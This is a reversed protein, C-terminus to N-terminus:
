YYRCGVGLNLADIIAWDMASPLKRVGPKLSTNMLDYPYLTSDLHSGDPTLKTTFTNTTFIGNKVHKDFESYGNIIGLTHGMEHLIATLLDYKGSAVSNPTAQLYNDTGTFESNDQPTTDIFWGIGNADDDISITAKNPRGLQDYGKITAEALQGTPLNTIEFNLNLNTNSHWISQATSYINTLLNPTNSHGSFFQSSSIGSAFSIKTSDIKTSSINTSNAATEIDSRIVFGVELSDRGIQSTNVETSSIQTISPQSTNIQSMGIQAIGIQSASTQPLSVEGLGIQTPSVQGLSTQIGGLKLISIDSPSIKQIGFNNLSTKKIDNSSSSGINSSDIKFSGGNINNQVISSNEMVVSIPLTIPQQVDVLLPSQLLDDNEGENDLSLDPLSPFTQTAFALTPHASGV